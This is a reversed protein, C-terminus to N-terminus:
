EVFWWKKALKHGGEDPEKGDPSYYFVGAYSEHFFDIGEVTTEDVHYIEYGAVSNQKMLNTIEYFDIVGVQLEKLIDSFLYLEDGSETRVSSPNATCAVENIWVFIDAEEQKEATAIWLSHMDDNQEAVQTLSNMSEENALFWGKAQGPTIETGEGEDDDYDYSSYDDSNESDDSFSYVLVGISIAGAFFMLGLVTLTVLLLTKSKPPDLLENLEPNDVLPQSPDQNQM